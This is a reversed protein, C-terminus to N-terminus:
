KRKHMQWFPLSTFGMYAAIVGLFSYVIAVIINELPVLEDAPVLFLVALAILIISILSVWAMKRRNNWTVIINAPEGADITATPNSAAGQDMDFTEYPIEYEFEQKNQM